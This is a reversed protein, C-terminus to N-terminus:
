VGCGLPDRPDHAGSSNPMSASPLVDGSEARSSFADAYADRNATRLSFTNPRALSGKGAVRGIILALSKNVPGFASSFPGRTSETAACVAEFVGQQLNRGKLDLAKKLHKSFDVWARYVNRRTSDYSSVTSWRSGTILNTINGQADAIIRTSVELDCSTSNHRKLSDLEGCLMRVRAELDRVERLRGDFGLVAMDCAKEIKSLQPVLM